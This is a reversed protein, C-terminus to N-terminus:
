SYYRHWNHRFYSGGPIGAEKAAKIVAEGGGGPMNWDTIVKDPKKQSMATIAPTASDFTYVECEPIYREFCAKLLGRVSDDDDVVM